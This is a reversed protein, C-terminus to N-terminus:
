MFCSSWFTINHHAMRCACKSGSPKVYDTLLCTIKKLRLHMNRYEKIVQIYQHALSLFVKNKKLLSTLDNPQRTSNTPSPILKQHKRQLFL